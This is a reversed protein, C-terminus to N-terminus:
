GIISFEMGVQYPLWLNDKHKKIIEILEDASKKSYRFLNLLVNADLVFVGNQWIRKREEDNLLFYEKFKNKM